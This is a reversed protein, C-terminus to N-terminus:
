IRTSQAPRDPALGDLIEVLAALVRRPEDPLPAIEVIAGRAQVYLGPHRTEM